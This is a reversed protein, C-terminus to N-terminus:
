PPSRRTPAEPPVSGEEEEATRVATELTMARGAAQARDSAPSGLQARAAEIWGNVSEADAPARPAGTADRIADAAGLLVLVRTADGEASALRAFRELAQAVERPDGLEVQIALSERLLERAKPYDGRHVALLGLEGLSYAIGMREGTQRQIALSREHCERATEYDGQEFAVSGLGNLSIAESTRNGLRKKISLAEEYHARAGAFDGLGQRLNGLNHLTASLGFEDGLERYLALCEEYSARAGDWDGRDIALNGLSRLSGALDARAGLSRAQHVCRELCERALGFDGQGRALVAMGHLSRVRPLSAPADPALALAATLWIRGESWIGRLWWFSWLASTYRLATDAEGSDIAHRLARRLNDHAEAVRGIWLAEESGTYEPEAREVFSLYFGNHRRLADREEGSAALKERGYERLTELLRYRAAGAVGEEPVLLSTDALQALLDLIEPEEIGDGSCVAEAAELTLGGAFVSLRNFLTQEPPALMEYSWDVTARLTQQRPAAARSGGTLLRFRDRLRALIQAPPLVNVRAAALEVALPIGDLEACIEAVAGANRESLAFSALAARAREEFLRVAEYQLARDPTAPLPEGAAPLSLPPIVWRAEGPLDLPERSTALVRVGPAARLLSDTIAACAAVLHECNDLLLLLQRSKVHAVLADGISREAEERVGLATAVAQPVLSSDSLGALETLWVGDPYGSLLDAAVRLALRTKGCGGPGTVTVLRNAALLRKLEAVERARGVFSTTEAPLNNPGATRAERPAAPLAGSLEQGLARLAGALEGADAFRRERDKALARAILLDFSYPLGPRVASPPDPDRTAIEHMLAITSAGTFAPRGTAGEYLVSGLSFIDTRPDLREGRSQEPSMYAVTGVIVGPATLEASRTAESPVGAEPAFRKALGFDLLKVQGRPTLAINSPKIDRHILGAAHAAGLADAAMLGIGILDPLAMPGKQLRDRLTEGEVLEMAIFPTGDAQEVAYVTVIHPHNLASAARAERLFREAAAPDGAAEPSLLKLAVTRGLSLDQARYVEGMGGEGLKEVVRYHSFTRGPELPL